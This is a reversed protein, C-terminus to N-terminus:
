GRLRPAVAAGLALAVALAGVLVFASALGLANVAPQTLVPSLFQGAFVSTTMGGIARGRLVPPVVEAIWASLNPLILGAGLGSLALAAVVAAYGGAFGAAVLGGGLLSFSLAAISVFGLLRKVRGYQTSAAAAFLTTVAVAFGSATPGVGILEELYFPIQTPITYFVVQGLLASGFILALAGLPWRGGDGATGDGSRDPEYLRLLAAPVLSLALLYILFPGRWDIGALIGGLSLFVFGGISTFAAQLGLFRARAEGEFYDAILATASTMVGAVALGLFARGVLIAWLSDLVLGSAGALAYLAVSAVLLPKRGLRDAILGAFPASLAIFIAHTTLTLRVLYDAGEVGSFADRMAPLSPAITAGAMVTLASAGLLTAKLAKSTPNRTKVGEEKV